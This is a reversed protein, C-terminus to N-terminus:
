YLRNKKILFFAFQINHKVIYNKFFAIRQEYISKVKEKYSMLGHLYPKRNCEPASKDLENYFNNCVANREKFKLKGDKIRICITDRPILFVSWRYFSRKNWSASFEAFLSKHITNLILHL